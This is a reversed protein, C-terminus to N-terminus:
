PPRASGSSKAALIWSAPEAMLAPGAEQGLSYRAYEREGGSWYGCVPGRTGSGSTPKPSCAWDILRARRESVLVNDPTWDSHTLVPGAFVATTEPDDLYPKWRDEARKFPGPDDPVKIASLADMLHVLRDLDPSGPLLRRPPGTRVPLRPREMRGRRLAVAPGPLDGHRAPRGRGRPGPRHGSPPILAPGRRVAQPSGHHPRHPSYAFARGPYRPIRGASFGRLSGALGRSWTPASKMM